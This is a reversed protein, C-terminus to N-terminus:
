KYVVFKSNLVKDNHEIQIMYTGLLLSSTDITCLDNPESQKKQIVLRGFTDYIRISANNPINKINLKENTPNPFIKIQQLNVNTIGLSENAKLVQFPIGSTGVGTSFIINNNNDFALHPRVLANITVYSWFSLPGIHEWNQGNFKFLFGTNNGGQYILHLINNNDYRLQNQASFTANIGITNFTIWSDNADNYKIISLTNGTSPKYSIIIEGANSVAMSSLGLGTFITSGGPASQELKQFGNQISGKFVYIQNTSQRVTSVYFNNNKFIIKNSANVRRPIMLINAAISSEITVVGNNFRALSLNSYAQGSAGETRHIFYINNNNDYSLGGYYEPVSTAEWTNTTQNLKLINNMMGIYIEGSPTILFDIHSENNEVVRLINQGIQNWNTGNYKKLKLFVTDGFTNVIAESELLYLSNDPAVEVYGQLNQYNDPSLSTSLYLQDWSNQSWLQLSVFFIFFKFYHKKM